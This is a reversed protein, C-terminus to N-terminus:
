GRAGLWLSLLTSIDFCASWRAFRLRSMLGGLRRDGYRRTVVPLRLHSDGDILRPALFVAPVVTVTIAIITVVIVIEGLGKVCEGDVNALVVPDPVFTEVTAFSTESPALFCLCFAGLKTFAMTVHDNSMGSKAYPLRQWFGLRSLVLVPVPLLTLRAPRMPTYTYTSTRMPSARLHNRAFDLSVRNGQSATGHRRRREAFALRLLWPQM